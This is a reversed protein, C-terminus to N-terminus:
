KTTGRENRIRWLEIAQCPGGPQGFMDSLGSALKIVDLLHPNEDLYEDWLKSYLANCEEQNIVSHGDRKKQKAARWDLGTTGDDFVKCIHYADEISFGGLSSPRAYFPSFRKDGRTSCELYPPEGVTIMEIGEEHKGRRGTGKCEPCEHGGYEGWGDFKRGPVCDCGDDCYKLSNCQELHIRRFGLCHFCKKENGYEIM